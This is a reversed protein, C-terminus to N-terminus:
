WNQWLCRSPKETCKSQKTSSCSGKQYNSIVADFKSTKIYLDGLNKYAIPNNSNKEAYKEYAELANDYEGISNYIDGIQDWLSHQSPDIDIVKKYNEIASKPAGTNFQAFQAKM